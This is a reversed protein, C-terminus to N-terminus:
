APSHHQHYEAAARVLAVIAAAMILWPMLRLAPPMPMTWAGVVLLSVVVTRPLTSVSRARSRAIM